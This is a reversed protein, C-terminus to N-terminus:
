EVIGLLIRMPPWLSAILQVLVTGMLVLVVYRNNFPLARRILVMRVLQMFVISIFSLTRGLEVGGMEMGVWFTVLTVVAIALGYGGLEFWDRGRIIGVGSQRPKEQMMKPHAVDTALALAPLGDTVLNIWLIMAPTRPAEGAPFLVIAGVIALIEGINTSILYHIANRINRYIRRGEEIAAVITAYNDDALVMDSAEKSVDTGTKGMAIGIDAQKIALADNVGDGTTAVVKGDKQLLQVLRLKDEPACRGIIVIEELIGNIEEDSMQAFEKGELVRARALGPQGLFGLEKGIAEATRINDGTVMITRVGASTAQLLSGKVEMRPPDAIGVLGLYELESEIQEQVLADKEELSLRKRGLALTRLGHSAFGEVIGEIEKKQEISLECRELIREPAGKVFVEGTVVIVSMMKRGSDFPFEKLVKYKRRLGEYAVGMEELYLLLAGETTDGLVLKEGDRVEIRATNCVGAVAYFTERNLEDKLHVERVSMRNTTLTGTKDTCIVQVSGLTEVASLKRVIAKRKAMQSVGLALTVTVVAPLGEPVAAVALSISLLLIEQLEIGRWLGVLFVFACIVVAGISLYIGVKKLQKQLPTEVKELSGLTAAIKGFRTRMGTNVVRMEGHGKIILTGMWLQNVEEAKEGEMMVKKVPESEGTLVSENVQIETGEVLVGDAVVKDGESIIVIDDPVIMTSELEVEKGDRMVRVLSSAMAALAEVAKEAKFEQYFGLLGNVLIIFLIFGADLYEQFFISILAAVFLLLVLLSSFQALLIASLPRKSNNVLENRGYESLKSAAETSSLGSNM